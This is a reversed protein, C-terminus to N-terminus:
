RFISTTSLEIESFVVSEPSPLDGVKVARVYQKRMRIQLEGNNKKLLPIGLLGVTAYCFSSHFNRKAVVSRIHDLARIRWEEDHVEQALLQDRQREFKVDTYAGYRLTLALTSSPQAEMVRLFRDRSYLGESPVGAAFLMRSFGREGRRVTLYKNSTSIYNNWFDIFVQSTLVSKKILFFYSLFIGAHDSDKAPHDVHRLAGVFGASSQEMADLMSESSSLPFWVSDNLIILIDPSVSWSWLLRVGARYGGFDYGFNQRELFRWVCSDLSLHDRETVPSNCVLLVAYGKNTLYQCTAVVSAPVGRPQFILFIVVKNTLPAAGDVVRGGSPCSRDLWRQRIPGILMEPIAQLQQRLTELERHIKWAPIM